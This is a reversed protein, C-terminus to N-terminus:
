SALRTWSRCKPFHIRAGYLGEAIWGLTVTEQLIVRVNGCATKAINCRRMTAERPAVCSLRACHREQLVFYDCVVFLLLTLITFPLCVSTRHQCVCAANSSKKRLKLDDEVSVSSARSSSCRSPSLSSYSKMSSTSPAGSSARDCRLAALDFVFYM